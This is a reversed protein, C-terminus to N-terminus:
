LRMGYFVRAIWKSEVLEAESKRKFLTNAVGYFGVFHRLNFYYVAGARSNTLVTPHKTKTRIKEGDSEISNKTWVMINPVVSLHLLWHKGAVLNYAYGCGLGLHNARLTMQPLNDPLRETTEIKGGQYSLGALWSGASQKQVYFQYFPSDYSFHRYNFTYYADINLMQTKLWGNEVDVSKGKYTMSGAASWTRQYNADFVFRRPYFNFNVEFDRKSGSSSGTVNTAVELALDYYDFELSVSGKVDPKLNSRLNDGRARLRSGSLSGWAKLGMKGPSRSIYTTDYDVKKYFVKLLSDAGALLKKVPSGAYAGAPSFSLQCIIVSLVLVYRKM